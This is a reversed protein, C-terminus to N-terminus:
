LGLERCAEPNELRAHAVALADLAVKVQFIGILITGDETQFVPVDYGRPGDRWAARGVLRATAGRWREFGPAMEFLVYREPGLM